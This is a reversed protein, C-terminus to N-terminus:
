HDHTHGAKSMDIDIKQTKNAGIIEIGKTGLAADTLPLILVYPGLVEPVAADDPLCGVVEYGWYEPQRIYILPWLAETMAQYPKTGHVIVAPYGLISDYLVDASDFDIVQCTTPAPRALSAVDRDGHTVGSADDM